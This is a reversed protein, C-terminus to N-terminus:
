NLNSKKILFHICSLFFFVAVYLYVTFILMEMGSGKLEAGRLGGDGAAPQRTM